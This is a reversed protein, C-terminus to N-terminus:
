FSRHLIGVDEFGVFAQDFYADAAFFALNGLVVCNKAAQLVEFHFSDGVAVEAPVAFTEVALDPDIVVVFFFGEDGAAGDGGFVHLDDAEGIVDSRDEASM